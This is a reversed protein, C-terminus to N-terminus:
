GYPMAHDDNSSDVSTEALQNNPQRSARHEVNAGPVRAPEALIKGSRIQM